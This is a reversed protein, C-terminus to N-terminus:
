QVPISPVQLEFQSQVETLDSGQVVSIQKKGFKFGDALIDYFDMGNETRAFMLTIHRDIQIMATM